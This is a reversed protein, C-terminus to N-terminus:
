FPGNEIDRGNQENVNDIINSLTSWYNRENQTYMVGSPRNIHDTLPEQSQVRTMRVSRGTSQSNTLQDVVPENIPHPRRIVVDDNINRDRRIVVDDDINRDPTEMISDEVRSISFMSPSGFLNPSSPQRNSPRRRSRPLPRDMGNGEEEESYEDNFLVNTSQGSLNTVVFRNNSSTPRIDGSSPTRSISEDSFLLSFDDTDLFSITKKYSGDHGKKVVKEVMKPEGKIIDGNSDKIFTKNIMKFHIIVKQTKEVDIYAERVSDRFIWTNLYESFVCDEKLFFKIKNNIKSKVIKDSNILARLGDTNHVYVSDCEYSWDDDIQCFVSEDRLIDENYYNSFVYERHDVEDIYSGQYDILNIYNETRLYEGRNNLIGTKRNYVSLTDLYPYYRMKKDTLEVQLTLTKATHKSGDRSDIICNNWGFTQRDKYFWGNRKAYDKFLEVDFDNVTYIRDMYTRGEPLDLNWVIARGRLKDQDDKLILMNIKDSNKLYMELFKASEEYRLCSKGLPTEENVFRTYNKYNYWYVIEEGKVISFRDYNVNKEREAKFMNVFSEIDIPPNPAITDKPTNIPFNDSFLLRIVKGIKMESRKDKWVREVYKYDFERHLENVKNSYIFSISDNSEGFDLYSITYRCHHKIHELLTKPIVHNINSLLEVLRQSAVINISDRNM